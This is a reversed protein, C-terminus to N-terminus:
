QPPTPPPPNATADGHESEGGDPADRPRLNAMQDRMSALLEPHDQMRQYM